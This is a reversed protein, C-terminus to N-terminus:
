PDHFDERDQPFNEFDKLVAQNQPIISLVNKKEDYCNGNKKQINESSFQKKTQKRSNQIWFM